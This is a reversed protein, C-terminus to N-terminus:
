PLLLRGKDSTTSDWRFCHTTRSPRAEQENEEFEGRRATSEFVAEAGVVERSCCSMSLVVWVNFERDQGAAGQQHRM